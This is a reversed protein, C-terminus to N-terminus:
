TYSQASSTTAMAGLTRAITAAENFAPVVLSLYTEDSVHVSRPPSVLTTIVGTRGPLGQWHQAVTRYRFSWSCIQFKLDSIPIARRSVAGVNERSGGAGPRRQFGLYKLMAAVPRGDPYGDVMPLNQYRSFKLEIKRVHHTSASESAEAPVDGRLEFAGPKLTQEAVLKGDVFLQARTEFYPDGNPLRPVEGKVVAQSAPTPQALKCISHESVWGDEYIGAYELEAHDRLDNRTYAFAVFIESPM